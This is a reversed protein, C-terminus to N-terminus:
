TGSTLQIEFDLANEGELRIMQNCLRVYEYSRKAVQLERPTNTIKYM